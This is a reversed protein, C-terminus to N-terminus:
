EFSQGAIYLAQGIALRSGTEALARRPHLVQNADLIKWGQTPNVFYRAALLDLRDGGQVTHVGSVEIRDAAPIFRRGVYRVERGDLLTAVKMPAGHYRSDPPFPATGQTVPALLKAIENM